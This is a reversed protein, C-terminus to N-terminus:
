KEPKVKYSSGIHSPKNIDHVFSPYRAVYCKLDKSEQRMFLDPSCKIPPYHKIIRDAGHRSIVYACSCLGHVGKIFQWQDTGPSGVPHEYEKPKRGTTDRHLLGWQTDAPLDDLQVKLVGEGPIADDEFVCCHKDKTQLFMRLANLHAQGCCIIGPGDAVSKWNCYGDFDPCHNPWDEKLEHYNPGYHLSVLDFQPGIYDILEQRTKQREESIGTTTIIYAKM